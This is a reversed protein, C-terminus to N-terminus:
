GEKLCHSVGVSLEWMSDTEQPFYGPRYSAAQHCQMDEIMATYIKSREPISTYDVYILLELLFIWFSTWAEVVM